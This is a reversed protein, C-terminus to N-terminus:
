GPFDGRKGIFRRDLSVATFCRCVDSRRTHGNMNNIQLAYARPNNHLQAARYLRGYQGMHGHGVVHGV